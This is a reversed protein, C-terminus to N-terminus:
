LNRLWILGGSFVFIFIILSLPINVLSFLGSILFLFFMVLYKYLVSRDASRTEIKCMYGDVASLWIKQKEGEVFWYPIFATCDRDPKIKVFGVLEDQYLKEGEVIKLNKPVEGTAPLFYKGKYFPVLYGKLSNIKDLYARAINWAVDKEIVPKLIYVDIDIASVQVSSGCYPCQIVQPSVQITVKGGCQSCVSIM